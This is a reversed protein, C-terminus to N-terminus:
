RVRHNDRKRNFVTSSTGRRTIPAIHQSPRVPSRGKYLSAHCEECVKRKPNTLTNDCGITICSTLSSSSGAERELRNLHAEMAAEFALADKDTHSM